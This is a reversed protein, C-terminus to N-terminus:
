EERHWRTYLEQIEDQNGPLVSLFLRPEHMSPESHVAAAEQDGVIFFTGARLPAKQIYLPDLLESLFKRDDLHNQFEISLEDPLPYFLTSAGKFVTAFKYAFGEYPSYFYGDQHWRPIDFYSNPVSARVAVWATEKGSAKVVSKVIRSIIRAVGHVVDEDENGLARLYSLLEESLVELNGLKSYEGQENVKIQDLFSNEIDSFKLDVFTFSTSPNLSGIQEKMENVLDKKDQDISFTASVPEQIVYLCLILCLAFISKKSM